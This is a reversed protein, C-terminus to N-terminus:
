ACVAAYPSNARANEGRVSYYRLCMSDTEHGSIKEIRVLTKRQWSSYYGFRAFDKLGEPLFSRVPEFVAHECCGQRANYIPENSPRPVRSCVGQVIAISIGVIGRVADPFLTSPVHVGIFVWYLIPKNAESYM